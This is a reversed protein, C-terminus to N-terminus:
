IVHQVVPRDDTSENLILGQGDISGEHDMWICSIDMGHLWEPALAEKLISITAISGAVLCNPATVTVGAFGQVPMGTKPSFIHNYRQGDIVIAREYDGSSAVGGSSLQVYGLMADPSRPHQIGICWPAGNMHPGIISIDGGLEVYGGNIGMTRCIEVCRDAAYEKVIGGFDIEMGSRNFKLRKDTREVYQWGIRDLISSIASEGPRAQKTQSWLERLIGSTIDFLGDSEQYCTDAYDLLLMTEQDIEIEGSQQAQQNIKTTLSDDRYRSYKHELRRVDDITKQAARDADRQRDAYLLICCPSGMAKFEYRHTDM